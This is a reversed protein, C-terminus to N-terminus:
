IFYILFRPWFDAYCWKEGIFWKRVKIDNERWRELVGGDQRGLQDFIFVVLGVIFLLVSFNLLMIATQWVYLQLWRPRCRGASRTITEDNIPEKQYEGLMSRIMALGKSYCSLRHLAVTQQTALCIATLNLLLSSYWLATTSWPSQVVQQWSFATTIVGAM